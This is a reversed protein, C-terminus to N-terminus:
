LAGADWSELLRIYNTREFLDPNPIRDRRMCGRLEDLHDYDHKEMWEELGSQLVRIHSPGNRLLAATSMLVDAGAMLGKVADLPTHVGGTLALSCHMHPRLMAIWSMPLLLDRSDSLTLKRTLTLTEPDIDPQYFRNFLVLGNAGCATLKRAVNAFSTFWPSLKVSVPIQVDRRVASVVNALDAEIQAGSRNPDCGIHYLNLELADAGAAALQKAFHAWSDPTVGNLSAIVPISLAERAQRLLHLTREHGREYLDPNPFFSSAEAHSDAVASTFHDVAHHERTIQEEFISPLVVAAAGADELARLSDLKGTLPSCSAVFPSTLHLGLYTSALNM